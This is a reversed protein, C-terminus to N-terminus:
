SGRREQGRSQRRKEKIDRTNGKKDGEGRNEDKNPIM